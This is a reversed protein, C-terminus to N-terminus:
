LSVRTERLGDSWKIEMVEEARSDGPNPFTIQAIEKDGESVVVVSDARIDEHWPQFHDGILPLLEELTDAEFAFRVAAVGSDSRAHFRRGVENNKTVKYRAQRMDEFM